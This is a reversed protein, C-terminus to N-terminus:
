RCSSPRFRPPLTGGNCTWTISGAGATAELFLTGGNPIRVNRYTVAIRNGAVTVSEVDRGNIDAAAPLGAEANDVPFANNAQQFEAVAIKAGSALSVGETVRARGIYDQYVPIAIAALVGLIAIVIMLEILTFGRNKM